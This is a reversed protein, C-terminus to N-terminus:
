TVRASVYNGRPFCSFYMEGGAGARNGSFAGGTRDLLRIGGLLYEGGRRRDRGSLCTERTVRRSTRDHTRRPVTDIKRRVRRDRRVGSFVVTSSLSSPRIFRQFIVLSRTTAAYCSTVVACQGDAGCAFPNGSRFVPLSSVRFRRSREDVQSVGDYLGHSVAM